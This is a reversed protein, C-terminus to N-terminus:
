SGTSQGIEERGGNRTFPYFEGGRFWYQSIVGEVIDIQSESAGYFDILMIKECEKVMTETIKKNLELEIELLRALNNAMQIISAGYADSNAEALKRFNKEANKSLFTMESPQASGFIIDQLEQALHLRIRVKVLLEYAKAKMRADDPMPNECKNKLTAVEKEGM